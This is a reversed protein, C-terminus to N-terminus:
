VVDALCIIFIVSTLQVKRSSFSSNKILRFCLYKFNREAAWFDSGVMQVVRQLKGSLMKIEVKELNNVFFKETQQWIENIIRFMNVVIWFWYWSSNCALVAFFTDHITHSCLLFQWEYKQLKRFQGYFNRDFKGKSASKM